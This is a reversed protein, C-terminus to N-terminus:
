LNNKELTKRIKRMRLRFLIVHPIDFIDLVFDFVKLTVSSFKQKWGRETFVLDVFYGRLGYIM